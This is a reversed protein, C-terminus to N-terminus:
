VVLIFGALAIARARPPPGPPDPAPPPDELVESLCEQGVVSGRVPIACAICVARGCVDCAAVSDEGSHISCRGKKAAAPERVTKDRGEEPEDPGAGSPAERVDSM